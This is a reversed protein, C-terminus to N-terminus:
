SGPTGSVSPKGGVSAAYARWASIVDFSQQARAVISEVSDGVQATTQGITIPLSRREGWWVIGDNALMRRVRECASHMAEERCGNLIVLFQDDSWRGVYDTKWLAGELTHAVTRLLSSAAEFGFRSRFLALGELRFFLIGFPVNVDAFTGLTERLHSQMMAHSAVGTVEDVYGPLKLSDERYGPIAAAQHQDEFIEVAGVISGHANRVPLARVHVPIEHGAKHHLFGNAEHPQSTKMARALPRDESCFECGPQGCHLLAEGVCSRGIVEYRLHGTIHEAGDSWLVIKKQLDVVCLGTPLSELIGLCIESDLLASM